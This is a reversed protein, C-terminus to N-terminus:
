RIDYLWKWILGSILATGVIIGLRTASSPPPFSQFFRLFALGLVAGVAAGKIFRARSELRYLWFVEDDSSELPESALAKSDVPALRREQRFRNLHYLAREFAAEAERARSDAAALEAEVRELREVEARSRALEGKAERLEVQLRELTDRLERDGAAM